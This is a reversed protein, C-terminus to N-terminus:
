DGKGNTVCSKGWGQRQAEIMVQQQEPELANFAALALQLLDDSKAARAISQLRGIMRAAEMAITTPTHEGVCVGSAETAEPFNVQDDKYWPYGLAKGLVQEVQDCEHQYGRIMRELEAIKKSM